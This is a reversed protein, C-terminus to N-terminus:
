INLAFSLSNWIVAEKLMLDVENIMDQVEWMKGCRKAWRDTERNSCFTSSKMECSMLNGVRLKEDFYRVVAEIM